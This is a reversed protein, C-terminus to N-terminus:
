CSNAQQYGRMLLESSDVPNIIFMQFETIIEHANAYTQPFVFTFILGTASIIKKINQSQMKVSNCEWCAKIVLFFCVDSSLKM